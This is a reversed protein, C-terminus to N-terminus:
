SLQFTMRKYIQRTKDVDIRCHETITRYNGKLYEGYVQSGDITDDNPIGFAKCIDSMSGSSSSRGKWRECTDFVQDSWPKADYPIIFPPKIKNIVCRQWLFRLDFGTINHGIWHVQKPKGPDAYIREKIDIVFSNLVAKEDQPHSTVWAQGDDVAWGICYILGKTGNLAFSRYKEEIMAEKCGKYKGEGNEWAGITKPDSMNKPHSVVIDDKFRPDPLTELDFFLNLSM